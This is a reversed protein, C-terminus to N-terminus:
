QKQRVLWNQIVGASDAAYGVSFVNGYLDARIARGLTTLNTPHAFDDTMSWLGTAASRQRTFWRDSTVRTNGTVYVEGDPPVSVSRAWAHGGAYGGPFTFRDETAWSTGGPSGKRVIWNMKSEGSVMSMASGAVYLNGASDAAISHAFSPCDRTDLVFNDAVTWTAGGNSSKMVRWYNGETGGGGVVFVDNGV